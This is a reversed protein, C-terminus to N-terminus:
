LTQSNTLSQCEQKVHGMGSSDWGLFDRIDKLCMASAIARHCTPNNCTSNDVSICVQQFMLNGISHINLCFITIPGNDLKEFVNSIYCIFKEFIDSYVFLSFPALYFDTVTKSGAHQIDM